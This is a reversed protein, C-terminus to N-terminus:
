RTRHRHHLLPRQEPDYWPPPIFEWLGDDRLRPRWAPPGDRPPEVLRHHRPCLLCLNSLCTPGGRTWPKVHHAHCVEVPRDCGPFCCGKDRAELATRIGKPVIRTTRGVDLIEGKAGLLVRAADSDCALVAATTADLREGTAAVRAGAGGGGLDAAGVTVVLRAGSGGAGGARPCGQAHRALEVLADARAQARSPAAGGPAGAQERRAREAAKDVVSRVLEGEAATLLGAVSATGDHNARVQFFRKREARALQRAARDEEARQAAEPAVRELVEGGAKALEDSCLTGAFEVMLAEARELAPRPLEPPLDALAGAAGDVQHHNAAGALAAARLLPFRAARRAALVLRSAQRRTLRTRLVLWSGLDIGCAEGAAGSAEAECVLEGVAADVTNKVGMLGALCDLTQAGAGAPAGAGGAGTLLRALLDAAARAAAVAEGLDDIGALAECM